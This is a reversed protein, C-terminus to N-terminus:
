SINTVCQVKVLDNYSQSENLDKLSKKVYSKINTDLYPYPEKPDIGKLKLFIALSFSFEAESLYGSRYTSWGQSDVDSFQNFNFASNAMFIGFGLFVAAIDTVYEWNEWGGPPPEPCTGTLYHAFEHAFTAVLQNPDSAIAPNYTILVKKHNEISFTGLPSEDAGQILVTPAVKRDPDPEQACLECPWDELGAYKKVYKFTVEAAEEPSDVSEPFFDKTPLVLSTEEYFANGGFNRLLWKYAEIQFLFNEDSLLQGKKFFKLM